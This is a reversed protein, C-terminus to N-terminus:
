DISYFNEPSSQNNYQTKLNIYPIAEQYIRAEDIVGDMTGNSHHTNGIRLNTETRNVPPYTAIVTREVDNLYIKLNVGDYVGAVFYFEGVVLASNSLIAQERNGDSLKTGINFKLYRNTQITLRSGTNYEGTSMIYKDIIGNDNINPTGNLKLWAIFTHPQSTDIAAQNIYIGSTNSVGNFLQGKEIKGATEIPANAGGFKTGNYNGKSDLITSSTLDKLHYIRANSGWVARAGYTADVAYDNAQGNGYLLYFVFDESSKLDTIKTHVEGTKATTDCSVIERACETELNGDLIRIDGGGNKVKSFFYDGLMSLDIYAEFTALDGAIKAKNITIKKWEFVLGNLLTKKKLYLGIFYNFATIQLRDAEEQYEAKKEESLENWIEIGEAYRARRNIQDASLLLPSKSGPKNYICCRNIGRSKQFQISKGLQGRAESSYLPGKTKAM